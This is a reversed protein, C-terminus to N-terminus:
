RERKSSHKNRSGIEDDMAEKWNLGLWNMRHKHYLYYDYTNAYPPSTVLLDISSDAIFGLERSDALRAECPVNEAKAVFGVMRELM